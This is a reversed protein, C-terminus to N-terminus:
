LGDVPVHSVQAGKLALVDTVLSTLVAGVVAFFFVYANMWAQDRVVILVTVFVVFKLVWMGLIIGFYAASSPRDRTVRQALLVSLTTVGMFLATLGAGILASALGSIGGVLFGVLSGVVAVAVTAIAGYVLARTLVSASKM